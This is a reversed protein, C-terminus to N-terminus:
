EEAAGSREGSLPEGAEAIRKIEALRRDWAAAAEALWRATLQLRGPRVSYLVERGSRGAEVLGADRLVAVHKAVAQRSVPLERALTSVSAAERNGIAVLVRLRTADSIAALVRPVDPPPANM